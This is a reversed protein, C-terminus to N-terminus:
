FATFRTASSVPLLQRSIRFAWFLGASQKEEDLIWRSDLCAHCVGIEHPLHKASISRRPINSHMFLDPRSSRPEPISTILMSLAILGTRKKGCMDVVDQRLLLSAVLTGHLNTGFNAIL